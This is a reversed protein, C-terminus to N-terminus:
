ALGVKDMRKRNRIEQSVHLEVGDRDGGAQEVVDDLVCQRRDLADLLQEARLDRM